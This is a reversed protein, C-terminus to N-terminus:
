HVAGPPPSMDEWPGSLREELYNLTGDENFEKVKELVASRLPEPPNLPFHGGMTSEKIFADLDTKSSIANVANILENNFYEDSEINRQLLDSLVGENLSERVIKM